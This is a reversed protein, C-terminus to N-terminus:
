NVEKNPKVRVPFSCRCSARDCKFYEYIGNTSLTMSQAVAKCRPCRVILAEIRAREAEARERKERLHRDTM